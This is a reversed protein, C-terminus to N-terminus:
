CYWSQMLGPTGIFSVVGSDDVFATGGYPQGEYTDVRDWIFAGVDNREDAPLGEVFATATDGIGFGASTSIAVDGVTKSGTRVNLRSWQSSGEPSASTVSLSTDGQTWVFVSTGAATCEDDEAYEYVTASYGIAAELSGVVDGAEDTFPHSTLVVGDADQIELHDGFLVVVTAPGAEPVPNETADRTPTPRPTTDGDSPPTPACATLAVAVIGVTLIAFRRRNRM